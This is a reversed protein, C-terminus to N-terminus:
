SIMRMHDTFRTKAIMQLWSKYEIVTAWDEGEGLRRLAQEITHSIHQMPLKIEYGRKDKLNPPLLDVFATWIDAACSSLRQGKEFDESAFYNSYSIGSKHPWESDVDYGELVFILEELSAIGRFRMDSAFFRAAIHPNGTRALYDPQYQLGYSGISIICFRIGQDDLANQLGLLWQWEKLTMVQAEDILLMAYNDKASRALTLLQQEFLFRAINKPKPKLPDTFEFNAAYLLENWFEREGMTSERRIWSVLPLNCKYRNELEKKLHWKITKSKGFRSPGHIHGGSIGQDIWDGITQIMEFSPPTWIAYKRQLMPHRRDLKKADM